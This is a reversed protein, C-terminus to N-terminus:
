RLVVFADVTVRRPGSRHMVRVVLTHTGPRAWTRTFVTKRPTVTSARLDVTAAYVGDVYVRALGGRPMTRSIWAVSRGRFSFRARAGGTATGKHYRASATARHRRRWDRTHSIARSTEEVRSLFFTPGESNAENGSTDVAWVAFRYAHGPVLARVVSTAGGHALPVEKWPGGDTSQWLWYRAIGGDDSASWAVRIPVRGIGLVGTARAVPKALVPPAYDPASAAGESTLFSSNAVNWHTALYSDPAPDTHFYDDNNCDLLREHESGCIARVSAGGSGDDYCMLDSEDTCHFGPTANPASPQVGGLTHVLEHAELPNRGDGWCGRDVRAIGYTNGNNLNNESARDDTAILAQACLVYADVWVLYRRDYRNYGQVGLEDVMGPMSAIGATSLAVKEIVLECSADTVFRVHRVGGTKDASDNVVRDVSSAWTRIYPAIEDYNDHGEAPYAYVAQVRNGSVGDGFCPVASNTPASASGTSEPNAGAAFEALARHRRVDRGYPAPDPGHTCGVRDGTIRVVFATGCPGGPRGRELGTFVLGRAADQASHAVASGSQALLALFAVGLAFTTKM